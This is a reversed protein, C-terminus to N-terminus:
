RAFLRRLRLRPRRLRLISRAGGAPSSFHWSSTIALLATALFAGAVAAGGGRTTPAFAAWAGIAVAAVGVAFVWGFVFDARDRRLSRRIGESLHRTGRLRSLTILACCVVLV